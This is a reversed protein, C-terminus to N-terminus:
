PANPALTDKILTFPNTNVTNGGSTVNAVVSLNGDAFDSAVFTFTNAQAGVGAPFSLPGGGVAATGSITVSNIIDGPAPLVLLTNLAAAADAINVYTDGDLSTVSSVNALAINNLTFSGNITNGATDVTTTAVTLTGIAFPTADFEWNGTAVNKTATRYILGGATAAGSVAVSTTVTEGLANAVPVLTLLTAGSVEAPNIVADTGVHVSSLGAITTDLVFNTPVAATVNGAVDTSTASVSIAGDGLTILDGATLAVTQAAGTNTIGPLSKTVSGGLSSFVVSVTSGSEATITVAGTTAENATALDANAVVTLAPAVPALTDLIFSTTSVVSPNGAADETSASVTISGDVLGLAGGLDGALLAVTQPVGTGILTKTVNHTGDSFTVFINANLEATATVAGALAEAATTNATAVLIPANPAATDLTFFTGAAVSPNGAVDTAIASVTIVGNGLSAVEGLSLGVAQPSGTANLSKIVSAQGNTFTVSVTSGAEASVTVAGNSAESAMALAAGQVVALTPAVQASTDLIFSAQTAAASVNGALDTTTANVNITGNGLTTLDGATLAVLEAAGTGVLSKTVTKVGNTFIVSVTSGAEATVTVAGTTAEAATASATAASVVFAPANPVGTDLVFNAPVADPGPNGAADIITASVTVNGDGLTALDAPTLTVAQAVGTGTLPVTVSVNAANTFTVSVASGAEATVTVAGATAEAATAIATTASVVFNAAVPALTDLIFSAPASVNSVNGAVDTTTASVTITGNGLTALDGAALAVAQAVGTGVLAVTVSVNAANTFTVSVASGAEATVTVAGALAETETARATAAGVVFAPANPALTDLIFSAPTAAVSVNGAVDTATASVTIAGQGLTALDAAVAQAVGTGTLPVTVSVNTANTFTVSVASGAEATVTVAGAIAEAATATAASVAFVPAVPVSTDISISPSAGANGSNGSLGTYAGSAVTISASGSAVNADPTFTATYVLPHLPDLPNLTPTLAGLTGGITVIDTPLDGFGLQAENFTFTILATEGAKVAPVNSTIVLSPALTDYSISHSAAPSLNGAADAYFGAAVAINAAGFEIGATPTFTATYVKPDTLSVALGTLTGSGVTFVVDAATFAAPAESFTFTILAVQGVKYAPLDSTITM